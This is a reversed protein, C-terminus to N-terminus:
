RNRKRHRRGKPDLFLDAFVSAARDIGNVEPRISQTHKKLVVLTDAGAVREYNPHHALFRDTAWIVGPFRPGYDHLCVVGGVELLRTWRLDETVFRARHVADIFIFSFRENKASAIKFMAASNGVRFDVASAEIGGLRLNKEVIARQDPFYTMPDVVVFSPRPEGYELIMRRLTGGAATGIELHPGTLDNDRLISILLDIENESLEPELTTASRRM